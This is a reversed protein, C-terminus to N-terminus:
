AATARVEQLKAWGAQRRFANRVGNTWVSRVTTSGKQVEFTMRDTRVDWKKNDDSIERGEEALTDARENIPERRHSKVKLLFTARGARLRHTLLCVIEQLIDADPATALTAKGGQGVWKKFACLVAANDCLLIVDESLAASQLALVVGGLEPRNSCMGEEERGVRACKDAEEGQFKCCGSGMKGDKCSGDVGFIAGQFGYGGLQGVETGMWYDQELDDMRVSCEDEQEPKEWAGKLTLLADDDMIGCEKHVWATM